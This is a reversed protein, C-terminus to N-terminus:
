NHMAPTTHSTLTTIVITAVSPRSPQSWVYGVSGYMCVYVAALWYQGGGSFCYGAKISVHNM